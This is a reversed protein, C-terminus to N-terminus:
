ETIISLISLTWGSICYMLVDLKLLNNSFLGLVNQPLYLYKYILSSLQKVTIYNKKKKSKIPTHM